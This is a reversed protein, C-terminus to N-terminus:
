VSKLYLNYSLSYFLIVNKACYSKVQSDLFFFFFFDLCCIRSLKSQYTFILELSIFILCELIRKVVETITEITMSKNFGEPLDRLIISKHCELYYFARSVCSEQMIIIWLQYIVFPSICVYLLRLVVLVLQLVVLMFLHLVIVTELCCNWTLFSAEGQLCGQQGWCVVIDWSFNKEWCVPANGASLTCSLVHNWQFATICVQRASCVLSMKLEQIFVVCCDTWGTKQLLYCCSYTKAKAVQALCEYRIIKWLEPCVDKTHKNEVNNKLMLQSWSCILFMIHKRFTLVLTLYQFKHKWVYYTERTM